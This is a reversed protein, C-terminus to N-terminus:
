AIDAMYQVALADTITLSVRNCGTVTLFLIRYPWGSDGSSKTSNM